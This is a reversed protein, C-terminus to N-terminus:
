SYGIAMMELSFIFATCAYLRPSPSPSPGKSWADLDCRLQLRSFLAIRELELDCSAWCLSLPVAEVGSFQLCRTHQATFGSLSHTVAIERLEPDGLRHRQCGAQAPEHGMWRESSGGHVWVLNDSRHPCLFVIWTSSKAGILFLPIVKIQVELLRWM